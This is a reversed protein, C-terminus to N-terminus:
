NEAAGGISSYETLQQLSEKLKAKENAKSASNRRSSVPSVVDWIQGVKPILICFEVILFMM